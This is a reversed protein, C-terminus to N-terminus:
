GASHDVECLVAERLDLRAGLHQERWRRIAERGRKVVEVHEPNAM